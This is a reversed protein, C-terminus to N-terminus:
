FGIETRFESFRRLKARIILQKVAGAHLIGGSYEAEM